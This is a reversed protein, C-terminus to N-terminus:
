FTSERYLFSRPRVIPCYYLSTQWLQLMLTTTTTLLPAFDTMTSTVTDTDQELM